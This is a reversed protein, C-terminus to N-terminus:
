ILAIERAHHHAPHATGMNKSGDLIMGIWPVM